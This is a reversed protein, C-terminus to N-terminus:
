SKTTACAVAIKALRLGGAICLQREETTIAPAAEGVTHRSPGYPTGGSQTTNLESLSYPLGCILMGQHLLPIMMTTLTTEQGGHLSATATFVMAPKGILAGEVWLATTNDLFYKLPAAMNGFRTPSGLAMGDCNRLDDLTAYPDGDQPINDETAECVSSVAPVTRLIAQEGATEIGRALLQAMERTTGHRSYYLVLLPM